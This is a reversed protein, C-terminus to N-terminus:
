NFLTWKKKTTIREPMEAYIPQGNVVAESNEMLQYVKENGYRKKVQKFANRIQFGRKKTHHADSAIFSTLNAEILQHSFHEAEKGFKGVLSGATIQTLAGAKVMRYLKDPNERFGAHREPHVIIPKYGEIQMDFLLETMDNPIHNMPLEIFVYTTTQNIPLLTGNKLDSIMNEYVTIEQGPLVEVQIGERKFHENLEHVAEIIVESSNLQTGHLFHPTAVIKEIGEKEAEKGMALSETISKAGDDLGPLIHCHLDIM